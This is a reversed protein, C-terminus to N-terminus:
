WHADLQQVAIHVIDKHSAYLNLHGDVDIWKLNKADDGAKFKFHEVTTGIEDHFNFANTEMWANDTNRPDDVYGAYIQKGSADFFKLAAEIEAALNSHFMFQLLCENPYIRYQKGTAGSLAEEKFERKAAMQPTENDDLMGGPMAWMSNDRRQIAVM